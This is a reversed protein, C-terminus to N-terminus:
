RLSRRAMTGASARARQRASGELWEDLAVRLFRLNRGVRTYCWAPIGGRRVQKYLANLSPLKLYDLTERPTLYRTEAVTPAGAWDSRRTNARAGLAQGVRVLGPDTLAAFLGALARAEEETLRLAVVRSSVGANM